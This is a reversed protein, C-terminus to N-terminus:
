RKAGKQSKGNGGKYAPGHCAEEWKNFIFQNDTFLQQQLDRILEVHGTSIKLRRLNRAFKIEPVGRSTIVLTVVTVSAGAGLHGAILKRLPEYIARKAASARSLGSHAVQVDMIVVRAAKGSLANVLILDPRYHKSPVELPFFPNAVEELM